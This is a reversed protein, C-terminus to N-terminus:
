RAVFPKVKAVEEWLFYEAVGQIVLESGGAYPNARLADLDFVREWSERMRDRVWEKRAGRAAALQRDWEEDEEETLALYWGNLVHHWADFDLLLIRERPILLEIRVGREGRRLLSGTRLDKPEVWFWVPWGGRYCDLRAAMHQMLWRYPPRFAKWVRRGDGRLIRKERFREVCRETQISWVRLHHPSSMARRQSSMTLVHPASRGVLM